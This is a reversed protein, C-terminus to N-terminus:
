HILFQTFHYYIYSFLYLYNSTYPLSTLICTILPILKRIILPFSHYAFSPTNVDQKEEYASELDVKDLNDKNTLGKVNMHRNFTEIMDDIKKTMLANSDEIKKVRESLDVVQPGLSNATYRSTSQKDEM